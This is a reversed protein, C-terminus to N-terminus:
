YIGVTAWNMNHAVVWRMEMRYPILLLWGHCLWRNLTEFCLVSGTGESAKWWNFFPKVCRKCFKNNKNKGGGLLKFNIQSNLWLSNWLCTRTIVENNKKGILCAFSRSDINVCPPQQNTDMVHLWLLERHLHFMSDKRQLFLAFCLSLPLVSSNILDVTCYM